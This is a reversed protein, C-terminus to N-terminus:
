ALWDYLEQYQRASNGWSYDQAMARDVIKNWERTRDYYIREAYRITGLM